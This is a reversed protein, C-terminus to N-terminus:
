AGARGVAGLTAFRRAPNSGLCGRAVVIRGRFRIAPLHFISQRFYVPDAIESAQRNGSQEASGIGARLTRALEPPWVTKPGIKSKTLKGTSNDFNGHSILEVGPKCSRAPRAPPLGSRARGPWLAGTSSHSIGSSPTPPPAVREIGAPPLPDVRGTQASGSHAALYGPSASGTISSRSPALREGAESNKLSGPWVM